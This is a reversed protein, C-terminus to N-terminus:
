KEKIEVHGRVSDMTVIFTNTFEDTVAIMSEKILDNISSPYVGFRSKYDSILKELQATLDNIIISTRLMKQTTSSTTTQYITDILDHGLSTNKGIKRQYTKYVASVPTPVLPLSAAYKIYPFAQERDKEVLYVQTGFYFPIEWNYPNAQIGFDVFPKILNTSGKDAKSPVTM